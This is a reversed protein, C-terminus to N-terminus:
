RSPGAPSASPSPSPSPSSDADARTSDKEKSKDSDPAPFVMHRRKSSPNTEAKPKGGETAKESVDEISTVSSHLLSGQFKPDTGSTPLKLTSDVEQIKEKARPKFHLAGEERLMPNESESTKGRYLTDDEEVDSGNYTPNQGDSGTSSGPTPSATSDGRNASSNNTPAPLNNLASGGTSASSPQNYGPPPTSAPQPDASATSVVGISLSFAFLTISSKLVISRKRRWSM